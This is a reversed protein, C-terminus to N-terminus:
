QQTRFSEVSLCLGTERDLQFVAGEIGCVGDAAKYHDKPIGLFSNISQEPNMGIVSNVPGSMGLDTIYGTGRPLVRADSTQVHTHTGWMASIQGDLYYAMAYKESTAEAHFDLLTYKVPNKALLRKIVVFPNEPGYDMGVRGILAIVRVQGFSSDFVGDGRGPAADAFNAPRLIFGNDDLYGSIERKSYAHNGLTIVDAGANMIEDADAATLGRGAANEGNVVTFDAGFDRQLGRLRSRLLKVGGASTIDGIALINITDKQM